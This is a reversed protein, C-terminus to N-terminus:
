RRKKAATDAAPMWLVDIVVRSSYPTSGSISRMRCTTGYKSCAHAYPPIGRTAAVM